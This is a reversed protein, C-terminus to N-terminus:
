NNIFEETTLKKGFHQVIENLFYDQQKHNFASVADSIVFCNYGRDHGERFTSELCVHAAYGTLYINEIRNNRLYSDLNSGIFASSSTRGRVIFEGEIPKVTEYFETGFDGEIFTGADPVYKRVGLKLGEKEYGLEPYGKQFQIGAHVIPIHNERAFGVLKEINAISTQMLERDEVLKNGLVGEAHMWQNQTEVLILVSNDKFTKNM